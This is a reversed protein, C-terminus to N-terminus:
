KLSDIMINNNSSDRKFWSSGAASGLQPCEELILKRIRRVSGTSDDVISCSSKNSSIDYYDKFDSNNLGLESASRVIGNNNFDPNFPITDLLLDEGNFYQNYKVSTEEYWQKNESTSPFGFDKKLLLDVKEKIDFYQTDTM